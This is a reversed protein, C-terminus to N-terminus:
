RQIVLRESLVHEGILFRISYSDERLMSVDLRAPFSVSAKSLLIEGESSALQVEGQLLAGATKKKLQESEKSAVDLEVYYQAPNPYAELTLSAPRFFTITGRFLHNTSCNILRFDYYYNGAPVYSGTGNLRGNWVIDGGPQGTSGSAVTASSSFVASGWDDIIKLDYQYANLPGTSKDADLVRWLNGELFANPIFLSFSGSLVPSILISKEAYADSVKDRVAVTYTTAVAPSVTISPGSGLNVSSSPQSSWFYAYSGSGGAVSVSVTRANCNNPVNNTASISLSIGAQAYFCPLLFFMGALALLMGKEALVALQFYRYIREM